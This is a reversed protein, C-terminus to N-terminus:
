KLKITFDCKFGYRSGVLVLWYLYLKNSLSVGRPGKIPSLGVASLYRTLRVVWQVVGGRHHLIYSLMHILQLSM